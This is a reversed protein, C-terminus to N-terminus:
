HATGHYSVEAADPDITTTESMSGAHPFFDDEAEDLESDSGMDFWQPVPSSRPSLSGRFLRKSDGKPLDASTMAIARKGCGAAADGDGATRCIAEQTNCSGANVKSAISQNEGERVLWEDRRAPTAAPMRRNMAM